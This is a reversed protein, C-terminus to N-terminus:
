PAETGRAAGGALRPAMVAKAVDLAGCIPCAVLGRKRQAEFDGTSGFWAEFVHGAGCRLDFVIM